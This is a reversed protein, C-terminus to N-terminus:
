RHSRRMPQATVNTAVVRPAEATAHQAPEASFYARWGTFGAADYRTGLYSVSPSRLARSVIGLRALAAPEAGRSSLFALANALPVDPSNFKLAHGREPSGADVGVIGALGVPHIQELDALIRDAVEAPFSSADMLRDLADPGLITVPSDVRFYASVRLAGSRHVRFGVGRPGPVGLVAALVGPAPGQWVHPRAAQMADAYAEDSPEHRFRCYLSLALVADACWDVRFLFSDPQVRRDFRQIAWAWQAAFPTSRAFEGVVGAFGDGGRVTVGHRDLNADFSYEISAHAAAGFHRLYAASPSLLPM